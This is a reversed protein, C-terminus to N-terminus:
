DRAQDQGPCVLQGARGDHRRQGQARGQCFRGLVCRRHICGQAVAFQAAIFAHPRLRFGGGPLPWALCHLSVCARHFRRRGPRLDRRPRQRRDIGQHCRAFERHQLQHNCRGRHDHVARMKRRYICRCDCACGSGQRDPYCVHGRRRSRGAGARNRRGQTARPGAARPTVDCLDHHFRSCGCVPLGAALAHM